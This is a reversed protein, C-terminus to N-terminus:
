FGISPDMPIRGEFLDVAKTTARVTSLDMEMQGPRLWQIEAYGAQVLYNLHFVIQSDPLRYGLRSMLQLRLEYFPAWELNWDTLIRLMVARESEHRVGNTLASM